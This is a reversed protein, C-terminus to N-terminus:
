PSAPYPWRSPTTCTRGEAPETPAAAVRAQGPDYGPEDM